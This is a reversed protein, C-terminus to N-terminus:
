SIHTITDQSIQLNEAMIEESIRETGKEKKEGEPIGIVSKHISSPKGMDRTHETVETTDSEKSELPEEQGMSRVQVEQM